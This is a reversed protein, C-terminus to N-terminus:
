APRQPVNLNMRTRQSTTLRFRFVRSGMGKEQLLICRSDGVNAVVIFGETVLAFLGTSGGFLEEKKLETDVMICTKTWVSNWYAVSSMDVEVGEDSIEKMTARLIRAMNSAVFTSIRRNDVHGDCVGLLLFDVSVTDDGIRLDELWHEECISDEMAKRRGKTEAMGYVVKVASLACVRDKVSHYFEKISFGTSSLIKEKKEQRHSLANPIQSTFGYGFPATGLFFPRVSAILRM